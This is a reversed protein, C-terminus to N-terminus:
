RSALWSARASLRHRLLSFRGLTRQPLHLRRGPQRRLRSLADQPLQRGDEDLRLGKEIRKRFRQSVAYGSQWTTRGDIASRRRMHCEARRSRALSPPRGEEADEEQREDDLRALLDQAEPAKTGSPVVESTRHSKDLRAGPHTMSHVAKLQRISVQTYIQTTTLQVHGLMEQVFRIDAGGEPMLTACTHRFLHCAGTKGLHAKAIYDRAIETLRSPSMPEGEQTVFLTLTDPPM